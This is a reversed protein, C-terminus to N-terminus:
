ASDGTGGSAILETVRVIHEKAEEIEEEGDNSESSGYIKRLVTGVSDISDQM